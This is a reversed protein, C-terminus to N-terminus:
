RNLHFFRCIRWAGRGGMRRYHFFFRASRSLRSAEHRLECAEAKRGALHLEAAVVAERCALARLMTKDDAALRRVAQLAPILADYTDAWSTGTLSDAHQHLKHYAKPLWAMRPKQMLLRVGLEWDNWKPLNENWGGVKRLFSSRIVMSQTTLMACLIQDAPKNSEVVNRTVLGGDPFCLRTRACLMDLEPHQTLIANADSLFDPSIEDDSDFFLVFDTSVERLGNNRAKCAGEGLEELLRIGFTADAYEKGFAECVSRSADTSGNDILFLEFDQHQQAALAQLSRPLWKERNRYPVVISFRM